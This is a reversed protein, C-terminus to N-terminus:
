RERQQECCFVPFCCFGVKAGVEFLAAEALRSGHARVDCECAQARWDGNVDGDRGDPGVQRGGGALRTSGGGGVLGLLPRFVGRGREGGAELQSRYDDVGHRM